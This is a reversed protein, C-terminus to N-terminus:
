DALKQPHEVTESFTELIQRQQETLWRVSYEPAIQQNLCRCQRPEVRGRQLQKEGYDGTHTASVREEDVLGIKLSAEFGLDDRVAPVCGSVVDCRTVVEVDDRVLSWVLDVGVM